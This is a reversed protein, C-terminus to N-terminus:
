EDDHRRRNALSNAAVIWATGKRTKYYSLAISELSEGRKVIHYRTPAPIPKPQPEPQVKPREIPKPMPIPKVVPTPKPVRLGPGVEATGRNSAANAEQNSPPDTVPNWRDYVIVGAVVLFLLGLLFYKVRDAM